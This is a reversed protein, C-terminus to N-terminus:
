KFKNTWEIRDLQEILIFTIWSWIMLATSRLRLTYKIRSLVKSCKWYVKSLIFIWFHISWRNTSRWGKPWQRPRTMRGRSWLKVLKMMLGRTRRPTSIMVILVDVPLTFGVSPLERFSSVCTLLIYNCLLSHRMNLRLLLPILFMLCLSRVLALLARMCCNRRFFIWCWRSTLIILYTLKKWNSYVGSILVWAANVQKATRPFGDLLLNKSLNETSALVLEIVIEDSVLGGTKM